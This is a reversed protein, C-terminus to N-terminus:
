DKEKVDKKEKVGAVSELMCEASRYLIDGFLGDLLCFADVNVTKKGVALWCLLKFKCDVVEGFNVLIAQFTMWRADVSVCKM